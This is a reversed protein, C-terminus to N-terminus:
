PNSLVEVNLDFGGLYTDAITGFHGGDDVGGRGVSYLTFSTETPQYVLAEDRYSDNPIVTLLDPVLESLTTPYRDHADVFVRIALETEILRLSTDRRKIADETAQLSPSVFTHCNEPKAASLEFAVMSLRYRWGWLRECDLDGAAKISVLSERTQEIRRFETLLEAIEDIPVQDHVSALHEYGLSEIAIGTLLHSLSGGRSLGSGLRVCRMASRTTERYQGRAVAQVADQRCCRAFARFDNFQTGLKPNPEDDGWVAFPQRLLSDIEALSPQKDVPNPAKAGRSLKTIEDVIERYRAQEAPESSFTRPPLPGTMKAYTPMLFALVLSGLILMALRAIETSACPASVLHNTRFFWRTAAMIWAAMMLSIAFGRSIIATARDVDAPRLNGYASTEMCWRWADDLRSEAFWTLVVLLVGSVIQIPLWRVMVSAAVLTTVLAVFVVFQLFGGTNSIPEVRLAYSVIAAALALVGTALLSDVLSFNLRHSRSPAVRKSNIDIQRWENFSFFMLLSSFFIGAFVLSMERWGLAPARGAIKGLCWFAFALGALVVVVRVWRPTRSFGFSDQNDSPGARDVWWQLLILLPITALTSVVFGVILQYAGIPLLAAIALSALGTRILWWGRGFVLWLSTLCNLVVVM